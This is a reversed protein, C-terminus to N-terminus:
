ASGSLWSHTKQDLSHSPHCFAPPPSPLPCSPSPAGLRVGHRATHPAGPIRGGSLGRAQGEADKHRGTGSRPDNPHFRRPQQEQRPPGWRLLCTWAVAAPHVDTGRGRRAAGPLSQAPVTQGRSPGAGQGDPLSGRYKVLLHSPLEPWAAGGLITSPSARPCVDQKALLRHAANRSGSQVQAKHLRCGLRHVHGLATGLTPDAGAFGEEGRPTKNRVVLAPVSPDTQTVLM